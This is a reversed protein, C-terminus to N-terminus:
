SEPQCVTVKYQYFALALFMWANSWRMFSTKNTIWRYKRYFFYGDPHMMNEVAWNAVKGALELRGFRTLTLISQAVATSDIPWLSQDYYKPAGSETFFHDLYFEMGRDFQADFSRDGTHERYVDLCDLVYATHFNDVWTRKDGHSYSWAGDERQYAMVFEITQRAEDALKQENTLSYVQALLRAGKMTANFVIQTDRPSYSYCFRGNRWTKNLDNLVFDAASICLRRAREDRSLQFYEFLANTIFGTAVVTPVFAPITAYRAEWDFDYGWCAGSYGKSQLAELKQLCVDIERERAKRPFATGSAERGSCPQDDELAREEKNELYGSQNPVSHCKVTRLAELYAFGQLCLGFTVPNEGKEIKLLPRLNWPLRKLVQQAGLRALRNNRLFRSRFIPANLADFPDYGHFNESLIYKKLQEVHASFKNYM